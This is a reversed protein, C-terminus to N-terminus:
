SEVATRVRPVVEKFLAELSPAMDAPRLGPPVAMSVIDTFGFDLIFKTLEDVCHDVNGVILRQSIVDDGVKRPREDGSASFFQEYLKVRYREAAEAITQETKRRM